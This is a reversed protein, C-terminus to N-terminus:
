ENSTGETDIFIPKAMSTVTSTDTTKASSSSGSGKYNVRNIYCAELFAYDCLVLQHDFTIFLKSNSILACASIDTIKSSSSLVLDIHSAHSCSFSGGDLIEIKCSDLSPRFGNSTRTNWDQAFERCRIQTGLFTIPSNYLIFSRGYNSTDKKTNTIWGGTMTGKSDYFVGNNVPNKGTFWIHTNLLEVTSEGFVWFCDLTAGWGSTPMTINVDTNIMKVKCNFFLRWISQYTTRKSIICNEFTLEFNEFAGVM